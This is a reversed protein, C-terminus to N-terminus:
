TLPPIDTSPITNAGPINSSRQQPNRFSDYLSRILFIGPLNRGSEDIEENDISLNYLSLSHEILQTLKCAQPLRSLKSHASSTRLDAEVDLSRNVDLRDVITKDM